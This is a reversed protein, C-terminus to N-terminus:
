EKWRSKIGNKIESGAVSEIEFVPYGFISKRKMSAKIEFDYHNLGHSTEFDFSSIEFQGSEVRNVLNKLAILILEKDETKM